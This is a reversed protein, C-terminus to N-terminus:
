KTQVESEVASLFEQGLAVISAAIFDPDELLGVHDVVLQTGTGSATGFLEAFESLAEETVEQSLGDELLVATEEALERAQIAVLLRYVDFADKNNLRPNGQEDARDALKHIKAVLLAAAGAVQLDFSRRDGTSLSGITMTSRMVLAGELGRVQRAARNGHVGLGAGRGRRGGVIRPVLLDVQTNDDRRYIGPQDGLVYGAKLMAEVIGPDDVLLEPVFVLDADFTAPAVAFLDDVARTYEYVAQAGVLVAAARLPGLADLADLLGARARVYNPDIPRAAM